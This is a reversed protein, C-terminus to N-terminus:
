KLIEEMKSELKQSLQKVKKLSALPEDTVRLYSYNENKNIIISFKATYLHFLKSVPSFFSMLVCDGKRLCSNGCMSGAPYETETYMNLDTAAKELYNVLNSGKEERKLNIKMDQYSEKGTYAM